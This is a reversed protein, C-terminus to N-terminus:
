RISANAEYAELAKYSTRALPSAAVFHFGLTLARDRFSSFMEPEIFAQVEINKKTPRLYQGLVLIEVGVARLDKMALVVEAEKEGLCLMISSKTPLTGRMQKANYLVALSRDYSFSPERNRTDLSVFLIVSNGIWKSFRRDPM